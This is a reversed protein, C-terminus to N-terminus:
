DTKTAGFAGAIAHTDSAAHFDGTVSEPVGAAEGGYLTRTWTGSGSGDHGLFNASASLDNALTVVTDGLMTPGDSDRINSIKGTLEMPDTATGFNATLAADAIFSGGSAMGESSKVAYQGAAAGTYEATGTLSTAPTIETGVGTYLTKVDFMDSDDGASADVWYGFTLYESDPVPVMASLSTPRFTWGTAEQVVGGVGKIDGCTAASCKYTGEVGDFEGSGTRVIDGDEESIIIEGITSPEVDLELNTSNVDIRLVDDTTGTYRDFFGESDPAEVNTYLVASIGKDDSNGFANMSWEDIPIADMDDMSTLSLTDPPTVTVTGDASHTATIGMNVRDDDVFATTGISALLKLADATAADRLDQEQQDTFVKLDAQVNTLETELRAIEADDTDDDEKAAALQKELDAEKAKLAKISDQQSMVQSELDSTDEEGDNSCSSLAFVAGLVFAVSLATNRFFMQINEKRINM